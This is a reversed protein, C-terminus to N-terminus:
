HPSQVEIYDGDTYGCITKINEPHPNIESLMSKLLIATYSIPLIWQFFDADEKELGLITRLANLGDPVFYRSEPEYVLFETDDSSNTIDQNYGTISLVSIEKDEYVADFLGIKIVVTDNPITFTKMTEIIWEKIEQRDTTIDIALYKNYSDQNNQFLYHIIDQWDENLTSHGKM